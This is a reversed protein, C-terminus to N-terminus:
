GTVQPRSTKAQSDKLKDACFCEGPDLTRDGVYRRFQSSAPMIDRNDAAIRRHHLRRQHPPPHTVNCGLAEAPSNASQRSGPSGPGINHV